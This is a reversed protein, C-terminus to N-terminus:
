VLYEQQRSRSRRGEQGVKKGIVTEFENLVNGVMLPVDKALGTWSEGVPNEPMYEGDLVPAWRADKAGQATAEKLAKEAAALLTYYDMGVFQDVQEGGLGLNALTLEAVKRSSAEDTVSDVRSGSQVIAKHFLGTAAPTGM